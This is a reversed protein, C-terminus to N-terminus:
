RAGPSATMVVILGVVTSNVTAWFSRALTTSRKLVAPTFNGTVAKVLSLLLFSPLPVSYAMLLWIVILVPVTVSRAM